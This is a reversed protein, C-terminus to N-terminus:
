KATSNKPPLGYKTVRVHDAAASLEAMRKARKDTDALANPAIGTLSIDETSMAQLFRNAGANEAAAAKLINTATELDLGNDLALTQALRPKDLAAPSTLISRIRMREELLAANIDAANIKPTKM